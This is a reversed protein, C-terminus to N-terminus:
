LEFAKNGIDHRYFLNECSIKKIQSYAKDRAEALTPAKSVLILVRGGATVYQGNRLATGMHYVTSDIDDLGNIVFGKDYGGPYGKSALVVGFTAADEWDISPTEGDAIDCFVKCADSKLLPLVVETEPDGFRCNFEIVKIGQPTKMLGGYLVGCFPCGEQVLAAAMPKMINNLAYSEDEASIFPLRTYAGMGGTNPGKDGDFARKHDQSVPMPYVDKGNVFCLMSFEPGTLYEEIVVRGKGFEQELLMKKLADDAEPLSQAIVVGKGAALGDFKIVQPFPREKIYNLAGEYDGFTEYSATPVGYKKMIDKAFKKSSEVRAAQRSPGFIRLGHSRFKDVIGLALAVEPGVVTLDIKNQAAFNCLSNVDSQKIPICEAISAIGANGPACFIKSV